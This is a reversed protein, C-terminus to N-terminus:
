ASSAVPEASAATPASDTGGRLLLVAVVLVWILLLIIPFFFVSALLGVAVVCSLVFVWQAFLGAARAQFGLVAVSLAAPFMGGILLIPYSMETVLRLADVGPEKLTGFLM